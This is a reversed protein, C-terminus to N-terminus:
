IDVDVDEFDDELKEGADDCCDCGCDCDDDDCDCVCNCECCELFESVKKVCTEIIQKVKDINAVIIAAAACLAALAAICSILSRKKRM